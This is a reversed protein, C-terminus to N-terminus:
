ISLKKRIHDPAHEILPWVKYGNVRKMLYKNGEDTFCQNAFKCVEYDNTFLSDHAKRDRCLRHKYLLNFDEATTAVLLRRHLKTWKRIEDMHNEKERPSMPNYVIKVGSNAPIDRALYILSWGIVELGHHHEILPVYKEIQCKNGVYPFPSPSSTVKRLSTTKYDLVIHPSKRGMKPILRIVGDVHGVLTDRYWVELEHYKMNTSGCHRCPRYVDCRKWKMCSVCQWDGVIKGGRGVHRQFVDHTATGVSTFYDSLLTTARQLELDERATLARRWVCYPFGSPRLFFFRAPDSDEVIVESLADKLIRSVTNTYDPQSKSVSKSKTM